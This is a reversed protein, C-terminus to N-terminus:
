RRVAAAPAGLTGVARATTAPSPTAAGAGAVGVRRAATSDERGGSQKGSVAGGGGACYPPAAAAAPASTGDGCNVKGCRRSGSAAAAAGSAAGLRAKQHGVAGIRPCSSDGGVGHRRRSNLPTRTPCGVATTPPSAAAPRATTGAAGAIPPPRSGRTAAGLYHRLQVNSRKDGWGVRLTPRLCSFFFFLSQKSPACQCSPM